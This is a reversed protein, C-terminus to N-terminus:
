APIPTFPSDYAVNSHGIGTTRINMGDDLLVTPEKYDPQFHVETLQGGSVADLENDLLVRKLCNSM